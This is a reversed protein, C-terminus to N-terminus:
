TDTPPPLRLITTAGDPWTITARDANATVQIGYSEETAQRDGSLLVLAAYLTGLRVPSATRTWPAASVHGLPNRGASESVGSQDFGLLPVVVSTLGGDRRVAPVPAPTSTQVPALSWGGLHLRVATGPAPDGGSPDVRVFRVEAPGRVASATTIWPGGPATANGPRPPWTARGTSALVSAGGAAEVEVEVPAFSDRRSCRGEGDLLGIHSDAAEQPPLDPAAHSAYGYRAYFPADTGAARTHAAGHNLVRVAGDARTGSVIWGPSRLM